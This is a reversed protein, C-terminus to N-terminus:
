RHRHRRRPRTVIDPVGSLNPALLQAAEANSWSAFAGILQIENVHIELQYHLRILQRDILKPTEATIDVGVEHLSQVSLANLSAGSKTGASHVDVSTGAIQRMLGAAMQSKGANKVRVFLVLPKTSKSM